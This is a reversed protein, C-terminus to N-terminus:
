SLTTKLFAFSINTSLFSQNTSEEIASTQANTPSKFDVTRLYFNDFIDFESYGRQDTIESFENILGENSRDISRSPSPSHWNFFQVISFGGRHEM